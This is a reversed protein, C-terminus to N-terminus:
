SVAIPGLHGTGGFQPTEHGFGPRNTTGDDSSSGGWEALTCFEAALPEMARRIADSRRHEAEADPWPALSAALSTNEDM